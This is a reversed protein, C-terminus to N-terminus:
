GKSKDFTRGTSPKTAALFIVSNSPAPPIDPALGDTYILGMKLAIKRWQGHQFLDFQRTRFTTM